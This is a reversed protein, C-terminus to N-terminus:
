PTTVGDRPVFSDSRAYYAGYDSIWSLNPFIVLAPADSLADRGTFMRSDFPEGFLNMLTPLIDLSYTPASITVPEEIDGCYMICVSEYMEFTRDPEHGVLEPITDDNYENKDLGYPYHDPTLVIVTDDLLDNDRLTDVLYKMADELELNAAIYAKLTDSYPLNAVRSRNKASMKNGGWNYLAHGSVSMYYVSFKDKNMYLPMTLQIMELDSAPWGGSLGTQGTVPNILKNINDNPDKMKKNADKHDTAIWRAYGLNKHTKDRAYYNYTNNHFAMSDYGLAMLRNGLTYSMDLEASAKMAGAGNPFLGTLASWEGTSTSGGWAPQYYDAFVIGNRSLMYLTPTLEPTIIFSSLAEATIFILNKGAFLGTYENKNSPTLGAVYQHLAKLNKNSEAAILAEFDIPLVNPSRDVPPPTPVNPDDTPADPSVNPALTVAPLNLPPTIDPETPIPEPPGFIMNKIDLGLTTIMGFRPVAENIDFEAGYYGSDPVIGSVSSFILCIALTHTLIASGLVNIQRTRKPARPYIHKKSGGRRTAILFLAMPVFYLAIQWLRKVIMDMIRVIYSGVVNETNDTVFSLGMYVVFSQKIFQELLIVITVVFMVAAVLRRRARANKPLTCLLYVVFGFSASFLVLYHFRSFVSDGTFLRLLIEYYLFTAPLAAWLPIKRLIEGFSGGGRERPLNDRREAAPPAPYPTSPRNSTLKM